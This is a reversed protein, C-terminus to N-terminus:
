DEETAPVNNFFDIIKYVEMLPCQKFLENCKTHCPCDECNIKSCLEDNFTTALNELDSIIQKDGGDFVISPCYNVYM